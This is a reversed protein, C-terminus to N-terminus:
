NPGNYSITHTYNEVLIAEQVFYFPPEHRNQSFRVIVRVRDTHMNIHSTAIGGNGAVQIGEEGDQGNYFPIGTIAEELYVWGGNEWHNQFILFAMGDPLNGDEDADDIIGDDDEDVLDTSGDNKGSAGEGTCATMVMAVMLSLLLIMLLNMYKARMKM